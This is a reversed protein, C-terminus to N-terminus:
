KWSSAHMANNTSHCSYLFMKSDFWLRYLSLWLFQVRMRKELQLRWTLEEVEKELKSKAAQLAGTEKAAQPCVPLVFHFIWVHDSWSIYLCPGPIISKSWSSLKLSTDLSILIPLFWFQNFCQFNCQFLISKIYFWRSRQM